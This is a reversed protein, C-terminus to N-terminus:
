GGHRLTSEGLGNRESSQGVRDAEGLVATDLPCLLM